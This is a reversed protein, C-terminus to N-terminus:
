LVVQAGLEVVRNSPIRFFATASGSNRFMAIFLLERWYAMDSALKPILTERGLFFTVDRDIWLGQQQAQRLGDPVDPDEMFGYCLHVDSVGNGLQRVTAREEAAVHPVPLTRVTLTVVREHLVKNYQLNHALAPPTGTPQATM